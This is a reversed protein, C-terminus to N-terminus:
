PHAEGESIALVRAVDDISDLKCRGLSVPRTRYPRRPRASAATNALLGARLTDNVVRKFSEGRQSRIRALEMAVDDDITITTRM